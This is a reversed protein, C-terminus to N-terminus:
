IETKKKAHSIKSIIGELLREPDETEPDHEHPIEYSDIEQLSQLEDQLEFSFTM